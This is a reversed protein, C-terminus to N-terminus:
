DKNSTQELQKIKERLEKNEKLYHTLQGKLYAIQSLLADVTKETETWPAALDINNAQHSYGRCTSSCYKATSRSAYFTIGCWECNKEFVKANHKFDSRDLKPM